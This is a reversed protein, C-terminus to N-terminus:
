LEIFPLPEEIPIEVPPIMEVPPINHYLSLISRAHILAHGLCPETHLGYRKCIIDVNGKRWYGEPCCVITESSGVGLSLGLELLTVPAKTNPDFYFLRVNANELVTLEWEVQGVFQKNDTNQKWASEWHDRRPNYIDFDFKEFFACAVGQWDDALGMEISGFLGLSPRKKISEKTVSQPPKIICAM